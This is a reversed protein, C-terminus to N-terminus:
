AETFVNFGMDAVMLSSGLGWRGSLTMQSSMLMKKDNRLSGGEQESGEEEEEEGKVLQCYSGNNEEDM